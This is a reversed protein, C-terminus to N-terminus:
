SPNRRTFAPRDDTSRAPDHAYGMGDFKALQDVDSIRERVMWAAMSGRAKKAFFSVTRFDGDGKADLFAPSVVPGELEDTRVSKFYENSALNVLVKESPSAALDTNLMETISSGWFGYLDTGKKTKLKSGMELRYPMMLDLPRLVGYLGSLIRLVKQSYSFDRQNFSGADLGIYVAGNFALISPRASGEPFPVEWDQFREHNLEALDSSIGMMQKLSRPSKKAMVEVLESAQDLM